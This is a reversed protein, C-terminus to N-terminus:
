AASERSVISQGAEAGSLSVSQNDAPDLGPVLIEGEFEGETSPLWITFTTGLGPQSEVEITGGHSEVIQRSVALGLGSRGDAGSRTTFFPMFIRSRTEEDMGVGADAVVVGVRDPKGFTTLRLEGGHPMADFANNFLNLLVQSFADPDIELRPVEGYEAVIRVEAEAARYQVLDLTTRALDNVDSLARRPPRPRAFELLSRIITRARVAEDRIVAAEEHRPDTEPLDAMLLEAFGLIGTLPNNVEHAVAAALEGVAGLKSAQVLQQQVRQGEALQRRVRGLLAGNEMAVAIQSAVLLALSVFSPELIREGSQDLMHLWGLIQGSHDTLAISLGAEIELGAGALHEKPMATGVIHGSASYSTLAPTGPSAVSETAAVPRLASFVSAALPGHAAVVSAERPSQARVLFSTVGDPTIAELVGLYNVQGEGSLALTEGAKLLRSLEDARARQMTEAAAARDLAATTRGDAARLDRIGLVLMAVVVSFAVALVEVILDTGLEFRDETALLAVAIVLPSAAFLLARAGSWNTLHAAGLRRRLADDSTRQEPNTAIM